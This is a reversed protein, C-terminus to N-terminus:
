GAGRGASKDEIAAAIDAHFTDLKARLERPLVTEHKLLEEVLASVTALARPDHSRLAGYVESAM